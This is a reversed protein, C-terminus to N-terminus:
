EPTCLVIWAGEYASPYPTSLEEREEHEKGKCGGGCGLLGRYVVLFPYM